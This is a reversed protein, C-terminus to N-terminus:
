ADCDSLSPRRKQTLRIQLPDCGIDELIHQRYVARSYPWWWINGEVISPGAETIAIDWGVSRVPLFQVAARRALEISESWFPIELDSFSKQTEPHLVLPDTLRGNEYMSIIENICGTEIDIFGFINPTGDRRYNDVIADGLIFKIAGYLIEPQSSRSVYTTIRLTQLMSNNTFDTIAPHNQLRRQILYAPSDPYSMMYDYLQSLSVTRHGDVLRDGDKRIYKVGLGMSGYAPKIIFEDPLETQIYHIWDQRTILIRNGSTVGGTSKDFVALVEPHPLNAAALYKYMLIKNKVMDTCHLPNLMRQIVTTERRSMYSDIRESRFDPDLLGDDFMEACTFGKHKKWRLGRRLIRWYELGFPQTTKMCAVAIRLSEKFDRIGKKM